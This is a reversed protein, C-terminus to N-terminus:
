RESQDAMELMNRCGCMPLRLESARQNMMSNVDRGMISQAPIRNVTTMVTRRIMEQASVRDSRRKDGVIRM